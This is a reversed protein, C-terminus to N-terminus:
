TKGAPIFAFYKKSVFVYFDENERVMITISSTSVGFPLMDVHSDLSVRVKKAPAFSRFNIKAERVRLGKLPELM